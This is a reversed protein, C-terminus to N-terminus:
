LATSYEYVSKEQAMALFYKDTDSFQECLKRSLIHALQVSCRIEQTPSETLNAVFIRSNRDVNRTLRFIEHSGPERAGPSNGVRAHGTM